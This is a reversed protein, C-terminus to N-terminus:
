RIITITTNFDVSDTDGSIITVYDDAAGYNEVLYDKIFKATSTNAFRGQGTVSGALDPNYIPSFATGMCGYISNIM